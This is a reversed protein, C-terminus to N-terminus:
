HEEQSPGDTGDQLCNKQLSRRREERERRGGDRDSALQLWRKIYFEVEQDTAAATLRNNRVTGTIVDKMHLGHFATKGNIGRWNLQKALTNTFCHKMIRWVSDKIDVGGIVSFTTIMKNKLDEEERLRKELALLAAVDKLPLVVRKLSDQGQVPQGTNQLNMQIMKLQEMIIEQNTLLKHLLSSLSNSITTGSQRQSEHLELPQPSTVSCRPEPSTSQRHEPSRVSQWPEPSQRPKPSTLSRRLDLSTKQKQPEPRQVKRRVASQKDFNQTKIKPAPPLTIKQKVPVEEESDSEFHINPLRKRKKKPYDDKDEEATQLDTYAEAEPLKLCAHKYNAATYLIQVRFADWTVGPQEQSRVAKVLEDAKYHAPWQCIEDTVWLAPVVEVEQTELFEVIHFM